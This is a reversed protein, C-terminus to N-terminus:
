IKTRDQDVFLHTSINLYIIKVKLSLQRIKTINSTCTFCKLVIPYVKLIQMITINESIIEEIKTSHM